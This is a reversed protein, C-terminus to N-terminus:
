LFNEDDFDEDAMSWIESKLAEYFNFVIPCISCNHIISITRSKVGKKDLHPYSRCDSPRSGYVSCVTGELFPCPKRNFTFGGTEKDDKVLFKEKVEEETIKLENALRTIDPVKLIPSVEKCCNGCTTCDIQAAVQNYIRLAISDIRTSPIDCSKLFSRFGWNDAEKKSALMKIQDIDIVLKM